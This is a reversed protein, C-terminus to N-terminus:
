DDQDVEEKSRIGLWRWWKWGTNGEKEEAASTAEERESVANLQQLQRRYAERQEKQSSILEIQEKWGTSPNAPYKVYQWYDAAKKQNEVNNFYVSATLPILLYVGFKWVELYFGTKGKAM